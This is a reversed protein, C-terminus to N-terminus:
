HVNVEQVQRCYIHISLTATAIPPMPTSALERERKGWNTAWTDKFSRVPESSHNSSRLVRPTASNRSSVDRRPAIGTPARPPSPTFRSIAPPTLTNQPLPRVRK